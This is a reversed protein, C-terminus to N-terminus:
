ITTLYLDLPHNVTDLLKLKLRGYNRYRTLVRNIVLKDVLEDLTYEEKCYKGLECLPVPSGKRDGIILFEKWKASYLVYQDEKIMLCIRSKPVKYFEVIDKIDHETHHRYFM